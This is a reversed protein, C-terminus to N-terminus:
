VLTSLIGLNFIWNREEERPQTVVQEYHGSVCSLLLTLLLSDVLSRLSACGVSTCCTRRYPLRIFLSRFEIRFTFTPKDKIKFYCRCGSYPQCLRQKKGCDYGQM